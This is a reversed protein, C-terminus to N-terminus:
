THFQILPYIDGNDRLRYVTTSDGKRPHTYTVFWSWEQEDGRVSNNGLTSRLKDPRGYVVSIIFREPDGKSKHYYKSVKEIAQQATCKPIPIARDPESGSRATIPNLLITAAFLFVLAKNM